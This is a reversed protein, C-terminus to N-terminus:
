GLSVKSGYSGLKPKKKKKSVVKVDKGYSSKVGYPM